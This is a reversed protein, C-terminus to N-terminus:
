LRPEAPAAAMLGGPPAPRAAPHDHASEDEDAPRYDAVIPLAVVVAGINRAHRHARDDRGIYVAEILQVSGDSVVMLVQEPNSTM